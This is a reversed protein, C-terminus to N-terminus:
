SKPPRLEIQCTRSTEGDKFRWHQNGQLRIPSADLQGKYDARCTYRGQCAGRLSVQGSVSVTGQGREFSGTSVGAEPGPRLIEREYTATDGSVTLVFPTRLPTQGPFAPCAITGAYTGDFSKAEAGSTLLLV